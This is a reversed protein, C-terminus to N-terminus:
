RQDSSGEFKFDRFWEWNGRDYRWLTVGEVTGSCARFSDEVQEFARKVTSRDDVKNMVTYHAAFGGADQESLVDQWDRRLQAHFSRTDDGGASKPLGVAIGKTLKFPTAAMIHFPATSAATQELHPIITEELKSGPLAHFLTLHADLKNLKPPFYEKRLETMTRHLREDTLFTLVYVSKEPSSTRPIHAPAPTWKRHQSENDTTTNQSRGTSIKSPSNQQSARETGSSQPPKAQSHLNAQQSGAVSSSVMNAYSRTQPTSMVFLRGFKVAKTCLM